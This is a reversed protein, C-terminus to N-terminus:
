ATPKSTDATFRSPTKPNDLSDQLSARVRQPDQNLLVVVQNVVCNGGVDLEEPLLGSIHLWDYRLPEEHPMPIKDVKLEDNVLRRIRFLFERGRDYRWIQASEELM